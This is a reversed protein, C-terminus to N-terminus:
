GSSKSVRNCWIGGCPFILRQDRITGDVVVGVGDEFVGLCLVIYRVCCKKRQDVGGFSMVGM